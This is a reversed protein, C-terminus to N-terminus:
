MKDVASSLKGIETIYAKFLGDLEQKSLKLEGTKLKVIKLFVDGKIKFIKFIKSLVEERTKPVTEKKLRLINRFIAIFTNLSSVLLKVIEKENKGIELFIERLKILKGKIEHECEHRLNKMGIRIKKFPDKGYITKHNDKMDLFEMPFVDLSSSLENRTLILPVAIKEKRWINVYKLVKRLSEFDEEKIIVLVNIDSKRAIFDKGAASGYITISELNDKFIETINDKLLNFIKDM